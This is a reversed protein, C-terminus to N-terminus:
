VGIFVEPVITAVGFFTTNGIANWFREGHDTFIDTFNRLGVFPEPRQRIRDGPRNGTGRLTVPSVSRGPPVRRGSASGPGDTSVFCCPSPPGTRFQPSDGNGRAPGTIASRPPAAATAM